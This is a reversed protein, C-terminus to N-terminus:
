KKKQTREILYAFKNAERHASLGFFSEINDTKTLSDGLGINQFLSLLTEYGEELQNIYRNKQAIEQFPYDKTNIEKLFQARCRRLSKNEMKMNLWGAKYYKTMVEAIKGIAAKRQSIAKELLRDNYKKETASIAKLLEKNQIQINELRELEEISISTRSKVLSEVHGRCAEEQKRLERNKKHLEKQKSKLEEVLDTQEKYSSAYWQEKAQSNRLHKQLKGIQDKLKVVEQNREEQRGELIKEYATGQVVQLSLDHDRQQQFQLELESIRNQKEELQEHLAKIQNYLEEKRSNNSFIKFM